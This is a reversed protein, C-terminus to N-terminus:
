FTRVFDRYGQNQAFTYLARHLQSIAKITRTWPLTSLKSLIDKATTNDRVDHYQRNFFSIGSFTILKQQDAQAQHVAFCLSTTYVDLFDKLVYFYHICLLKIKNKTRM